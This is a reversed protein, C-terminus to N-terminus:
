QVCDALPGVCYPRMMENDEHSLIHCHWLYLGAIDYVAKVRTVGGPYVIVTDKFGTEGPEPGTTVGLADTRNIVQFMVLHLHIPHADVTFNNIEWIETSNLGPTETIPDMFNMPVGVGNVVTGLRASIPAAPV